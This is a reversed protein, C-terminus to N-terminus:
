RKWNINSMRWLEYGLDIKNQINVNHKVNKFGDKIGKEILKDINPNSSSENLLLQYQRVENASKDYDNILQQRMYKQYDETSKHVMDGENLYTITPVNPTLRAGSGDKRSIVESIYGDGVEAFEAKGGKRGGKYKPLPTALLTALQVAGIGAYIAAIASASIGFDFKPVQALASIVALSTAGIIQAAQTAKNFVAQDHEAKRKKKQLEADKKAQEKQLLDKQRADNGALEIQQSYYENNASIEEYPCIYYAM